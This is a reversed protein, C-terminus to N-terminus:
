ILNKNSRYGPRESQFGLKKLRGRISGAPVGLVEGLCKPSVDKTSYLLRWMQHDDDFGMECALVQWHHERPLRKMREYTITKKGHNPRVPLYMM